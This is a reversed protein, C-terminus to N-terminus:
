AFFSASYFKSLYQLLFRWHPDHKGFLNGNGVIILLAQARSIAVNLRKPNACFGLKFKTDEPLNAEKSRVLSIIIV